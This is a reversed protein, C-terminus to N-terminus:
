DGEFLYKQIDERSIGLKEVNEDIALEGEENTKMSNKVPKDSSVVKVSIEANLDREHSDIMEELKYEVNDTFMLDFGELAAKRENAM